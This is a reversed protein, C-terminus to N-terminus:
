IKTNIIWKGTTKGEREIAGKIKLANTHKQIASENIGFTSALFSRSISPDSAIAKLIEYQRETLESEWVKIDEQGGVQGGVQGGDEDAEVQDTVQDTRELFESHIPLECVFHRRDPEDTDFLTRPSGNDRMGRIITPIGTGRGETLELEKLFEGIRRNRYRRTRVIGKEFDSQKLSPDVGNYSLIEIVSPLVRVEIPERLEYNRHYVANSLAEELASYPYNYIRDAKERDAHKIVKSKLVNAKLYSLADTLQKQIPGEFTKENFEKAGLGNPFEVVDIQVAPFYRKPEASFMLIGVNKPFLHEKAGECLHMAQALEAISMSASESYLKSKTQHLHERMLGFNLDSICAHHNVRDDFPVKATLQILDAEQEENPIITSSYLRIRYNYTKNKKITVDDPVKYPRNSGAPAWIVLVYKEDIEELSLRPMYHPQLQNCYGILEKQVKEYEDPNFGLVPRVPKGEKEDVGIIIYGSGQNEFDNAFACVSRMITKPNWGKKFEMRNGEVIHGSLLDKINILISM